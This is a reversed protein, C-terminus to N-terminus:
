MSAYETQITKLVAGLIQGKFSDSVSLGSPNMYFYKGTAEDYSFGLSILTQKLSNPLDNSGTHTAFYDTTGVYLSVDDNSSSVVFLDTPSQLVWTGKSYISLRAHELSSIGNLNVGFIENIIVRDEASTLTNRHFKIFHDMVEAKTMAMIEADKVTSDPAVKLSQRLTQMIDDSYIALHSGYNKESITDLSINFVGLVAKRVEKGTVKKGFTGLYRDMVEVKTMKDIQSDLATTHKKEGLSVRVAEMVKIPYKTNQIHQQSSSVSQPTKAHSIGVGSSLVVGAMLTGIMLKSPTSTMKM